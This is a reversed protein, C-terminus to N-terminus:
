QVGGMHRFNSLSSNKFEEVSRKIINNEDSLMKEFFRKTLEIREEEIVQGNKDASVLAIQVGFINAVANLVANAIIKPSVNEESKQTVYTSVVLTIINYLDNAEDSLKEYEEETM